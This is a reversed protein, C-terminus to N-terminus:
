GQGADNFGLRIHGIRQETGPHGPRTIPVPTDPLWRQAIVFGDTQRFETAFGRLQFQPAFRTAAAAASQRGFKSRRPPLLRIDEVKAPELEFLLQFLPPSSIADLVCAAV